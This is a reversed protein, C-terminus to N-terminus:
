TQYTLRSIYLVVLVLRRRSTAQDTGHLSPDVLHSSQVSNSYICNIRFLLIFCMFHIM